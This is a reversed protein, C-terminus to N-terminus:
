RDAGQGPGELRVPELGPAKVFRVCARARARAEQRPVRVWRKMTEYSGAFGERVLARHLWAAMTRPRETLLAELRPVFADLKGPRPGYGKPTPSSLIKRVSVRSLGTTRAIHRVSCGQRHMMMVDM